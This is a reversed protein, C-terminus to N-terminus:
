ASRVLSAGSVFLYPGKHELWIWFHISEIWNSNFIARLFFFFHEWNNKLLYLTFKTFLKSHGPCKQYLDTGRANSLTRSWTRPLENQLFTVYSVPVSASPWALMSVEVKDKNDKMCKSFVNYRTVSYQIAVHTSITRSIWFCM